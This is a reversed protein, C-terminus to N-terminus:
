QNKKEALYDRVGKLITTCAHLELLMEDIDGIHLPKRVGKDFAEIRDLLNMMSNHFDFEREEDASKDRHGLLERLIPIEKIRYIKSKM